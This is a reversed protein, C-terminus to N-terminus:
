STVRLPSTRLRGTFGITPSWARETGATTTSRPDRQPANHPWEEEAALVAEEALALCHQEGYGFVAQLREAAAKIANQQGESM